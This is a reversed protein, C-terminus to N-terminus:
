ATVCYYSIVHLSVERAIQDVESEKQRLRQELEVVEAKCKALDDKSQQFYHQIEELRDRFEEQRCLSSVNHLNSM